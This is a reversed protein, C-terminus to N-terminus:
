FLPFSKIMSLMGPRKRKRSGGNCCRAPEEVSANVAESVFAASMYDDEEM